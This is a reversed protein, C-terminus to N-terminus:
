VGRSAARSDLENKIGPPNLLTSLSERITGLALGGTEEAKWQVDAFDLNVVQELQDCTIAWGGDGLLLLHEPSAGTESRINLLKRSDVIRLNADRHKVLGLMWDPSEPLRTIAENCNIVGSLQILPVSLLHGGVRFMLCQLPFDMQERLPPRTAAPAEGQGPQASEDQATADPAPEDRTPEPDPTEIERALMEGPLLVPPSKEAVTASASEVTAQHLMDDLYDVLAQRSDPLRAPM